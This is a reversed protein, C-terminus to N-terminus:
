KNYRYRCPPAAYLSLRRIGILLTTILLVVPIIRKHAPFGRNM